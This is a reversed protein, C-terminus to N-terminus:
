THNVTQDKPIKDIQDYDMFFITDTNPAGMLQNGQALNGPEKGFATRWTEGLEPGNVLM